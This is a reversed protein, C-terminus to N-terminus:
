PGKGALIQLGYRPAAALLREIEAPSPPAPAAKLDTVPVGVEFFMEELGAPAVWILMRAPRATANHFRHPKGPPLNLFTGPVGRVEKGDAYFMVEGEFVYFGEQERTHIHPPPGGGPTVVAEWLAYCGGTDAGVALFTYVDGVVAISKGAAASAM